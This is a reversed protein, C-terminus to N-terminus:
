PRRRRRVRCAFRAELDGNAGYALLSRAIEVAAAAHAVDYLVTQQAEPEAATSLRGIAHRVADHALDVVTAAASLDAATM